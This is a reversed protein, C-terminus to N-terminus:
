KQPEKTPVAQKLNLRFTSGAANQRDADKNEIIGLKPQNLWPSSDVNRM